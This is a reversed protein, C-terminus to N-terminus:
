GIKPKKGSRYGIGLRACISKELKIVESEEEVRAVFGPRRKIEWLAPLSVGVRRAIAVDTLEDEAVLRHIMALKLGCIKMDGDGDKPTLWARAM